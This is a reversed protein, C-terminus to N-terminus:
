LYARSWMPWPYSARASATSGACRDGPLQPTRRTTCPSWSTDGRGRDSPRDCPEEDSPAHSAVAGRRSTEAGVRGRLGATGEHGHWRRWRVTRSAGPALARRAVPEHGRGRRESAARECEC